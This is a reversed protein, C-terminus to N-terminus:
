VTRCKHGSAAEFNYRVIGLDLKTLPGFGAKIVADEGDINIFFKQQNVATPAQLAAEIGEKFWSPMDKEAVGCLKSLDKSKHNAGDNLGYGISIVCVLKEGADIEAKCKGRGFTGAVWCTRLGSMQAELVIREGYYGALEDLNSLNKSGVLAIYNNVGSFKGYHGLMTDFCEPDDTILQIHLGSENNCERILNELKIRIDSEIRDSSYQRVSHREKIAQKIDM